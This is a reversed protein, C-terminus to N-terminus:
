KLLTEVWYEFLDSQSIGKDKCFKDFKTKVDPKCRLYVAALKKKKEVPPNLLDNATVVSVTVTKGSPKVEPAAPATNNSTVVDDVGAVVSDTDYKKKKNTFAM